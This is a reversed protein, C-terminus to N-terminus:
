ACLEEYADIASPAEAAYEWVRVMLEGSGHHFFVTVSDATRPPICFDAFEVEANPVTMTCPRPLASKITGAIMNAIEKTADLTDSAQVAELPQMLMASTAQLALGRSLRVEIRGNWVGSLDCSGMVHQTGICRIGQEDWQSEAIPDLQMALMQEWFLANAKEISEETIATHM